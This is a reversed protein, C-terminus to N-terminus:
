HPHQTGGVIRDIASEIMPGAITLSQLSHGAFPIVRYDVRRRGASVLGSDIARRNDHGGRMIAVRVGPPMRSIEEAAGFSGPESPNSYNALDFATVKLHSRATPGLAIVGIAGPVRNSAGLLLAVNAGFSHGALVIPTKDAGLEHMSRAIIGPMENLFISNRLPLSDPLSSLYKKIDVGVVAYGHASLRAALVQHADWFGIDNGFFVVTARPPKTSDLSPYFFLPLSQLYKDRPKKSGQAPACALMGTCLLLGALEIVFSRRM